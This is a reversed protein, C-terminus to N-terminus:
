KANISIARAPPRPASVDPDQGTAIPEDIVPEAIGKIPTVTHPVTAPEVKEPASPAGLIALLATREPSIMGGIVVYGGLAVGVVASAAVLRIAARFRGHLSFTKAEEPIEDLIVSTDRDNEGDGDEQEELTHEKEFQGEPEPLEDFEEAIRKVEVRIADFDFSLPEPQVFPGAADIRDIWERATQFRDAPLTGLAIDISELLVDSYGAVRGKLSRYPDARDEALAALREQSNPPADGTMLHYFTAGLAYLDSSRNQASGEIYFEQPSYGDKVVRLTTLARSARTAHERAAGFDILIPNDHRDLLINDPSIDRHLVDHNHVFEIATLLKRLWMVLRESSVDLSKEDIVDYLDCGDIFDLAMYATGNDEFIQHIGVINPHVLKAMAKAERVFLKVVSQFQESSSASAPVVTTNNRRCIAAPFCEKVVVDRDLSDKALYTMGFGGSALFKSIKFQGNSLSTGPKLEQEEGSEFETAIRDDISM